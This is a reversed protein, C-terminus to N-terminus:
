RSKAVSRGGDKCFGLNWLANAQVTLLMLRIFSLSIVGYSMSCLCISMNNKKCKAVKGHMFCLCGFLSGM